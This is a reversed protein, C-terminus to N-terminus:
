SGGGETLKELKRGAIRALVSLVFSSLSKSPPPNPPQPPPGFQVRMGSWFFRDKPRSARLPNQSVGAEITAVERM